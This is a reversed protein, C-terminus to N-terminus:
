MVVSAHSMENVCVWVVIDSISSVNEFAALSFVITQVLHTFRNECTIKIEINFM